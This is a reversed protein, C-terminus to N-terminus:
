LDDRGYALTGDLCHGGDGAYLLAKGVGAFNGTRKVVMTDQERGIPTLIWEKLSAV